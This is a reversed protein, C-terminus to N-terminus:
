GAPRGFVPLFACFLAMGFGNKAYFPLKKFGQGVDPTRAVSAPSASYYDQLV